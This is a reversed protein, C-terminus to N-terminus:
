SFLDLGIAAENGALPEIAVLPVYEPREGPPKVTFREYAPSLMTRDGKVRATLQPLEEATVREGYSVTRIAPHREHLKLGGVFHHFEERTVHQDAARFLGQMAYVIDYSGRLREQIAESADAIAADAKAAAYEEVRSEAVMW